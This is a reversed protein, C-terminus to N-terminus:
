MLVMPSYRLLAFATCAAIVADAGNPKKYHTRVACYICLYLDEDCLGPLFRRQAAAVMLRWGPAVRRRLREGKADKVEGVKACLWCTFTPAM